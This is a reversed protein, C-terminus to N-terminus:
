FNVITKEAKGPTTSHKIAETMQTRGDFAKYEFSIKKTALSEIVEGFAEKAKEPNESMWPTVWFGTVNPRQFILTVADVEIPKGSLLGYVLVTGRSALSNVVDTGVKGAVADVAHKVGGPVIEKVRAVLDEKESNIVYDAGIAKLPAIHEDRRVVNITKYGKLKAYQILIRGLASSAATQLIYEGKQVGLASFMGLVTIPNITVQAGEEFSVSDPLPVPKSFKTDVVVYESWTSPAVCIHVRQGNTYGSAKGAEEIIGAAEFGAPSPFSKAKINYIGAVFLLDAPNVCAAKVKILVETDSKISPKPVKTQHVVEAANGYADFQYAIIDTAM